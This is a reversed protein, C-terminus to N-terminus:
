KCELYMKLLQYKPYLVYKFADIANSPSYSSGTFGGGFLAWNGISTASMDVRGSSLKVSDSNSIRTLSTDYIDILDFPTGGGMNIGGAFFAFGNISTGSLEYRGTSLQPGTLRTLSTDYVDISNLINNGSDYGGAFLAYDGINASAHDYKAVSLNTPILRTLSTDYVDVSDEKVNGTTLGGAFIAYNGLNCGVTYGKVKQLNTRTCSRSRNYAAVEDYYSTRYNYTCGGGAFIAYEGNSASGCNDRSNSGDFEYGSSLQKDYWTMYMNYSNKSNKGYIFIAYDGVNSAGGNMMPQYLTPAYSKTLSRDYADVTDIPNSTSRRDRGGGFLAYDGISTALQYGVASSLTTTLRKINGM